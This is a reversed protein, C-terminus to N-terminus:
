MPLWPRVEKIVDRFDRGNLPQDLTKPARLVMFINSTPSPVRQGQMALIEPICGSNSRYFQLQRLLKYNSAMLVM